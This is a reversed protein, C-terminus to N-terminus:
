NVTFRGPPRQRIDFHITQLSSKADDSQSVWTCLGVTPMQYQAEADSLRM